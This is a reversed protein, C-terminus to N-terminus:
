RLRPAETPLREVDANTTRGPSSSDSGEDVAEPKQVPLEEPTPSFQKRDDDADDDVVIEAESSCGSAVSSPSEAPSPRRRKLSGATAAAMQSWNIVDDSYRAGHQKRWITPRAASLLSESTVFRSTDGASAFKTSRNSFVSLRNRGVSPTTPDVPLSTIDAAANPRYREAVASSQLHYPHREHYHRSLPEPRRVTPFPGGGIKSTISNGTAMGSGTAMHLMVANAIKMKQQQLHYRAVEADHRSVVEPKNRHRRNALIEEEPTMAANVEHCITPLRRPRDLEDITQWIKSTNPRASPGAKTEGSMISDISFALTRNTSKENQSANATCVMEPKSEGYEAVVETESMDCLVSRSKGELKVAKRKTSKSCYVIFKTSFLKRM